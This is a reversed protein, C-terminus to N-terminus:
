YLPGETIVLLTKRQLEPSKHLHSTGELSLNYIYVHAHAHTHTHKHMYVCKVFTQPYAKQLSSLKNFSTSIAAPMYFRPVSMIYSGMATQEPHTYIRVPLVYSRNRSHGPMIGSKAVNCHKWENEGLCGPPSHWFRCKCSCEPAGKRSKREVSLFGTTSELSLSLHSGLSARSLWVLSYQSHSHHLGPWLGGEFFSSM